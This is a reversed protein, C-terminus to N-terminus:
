AERAEVLEAEFRGFPGGQGKNKIKKPPQPRYDGVGVRHGARNFIELLLSPRTVDPDYELTVQTAWARILPRSRMIGNGQVVARRTDIEYTRLLESTEPHVLPCQEYGDVVFCTSALLNTLSQTKIRLGTGGDILASRFAASPLYLVGDPLRYARSEAEDEPTPIRKRTPGGDQARMNSASSMLLAYTGRVDFTITNM